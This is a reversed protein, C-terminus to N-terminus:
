YFMRIRSMWRALFSIQPSESESSRRESQANVLMDLVDAHGNARAMRISEYNMAAPDVRNDQLLLQVVRAHGNCSAKRIAFNNKSAPDVRPDQLLLQVVDYHGEASAWQVAYNGLLSPDIGKQLADQVLILRGNEAAKAWRDLDLFTSDNQSQDLFRAFADPYLVGLEYDIRHTWPDFQTIDCSTSICHEMLWDRPVKHNISSIRAVERPSLYMGISLLLEPPIDHFGAKAAPHTWILLPISILVIAVNWYYLMFPPSQTQLFFM